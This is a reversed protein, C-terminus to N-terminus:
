DDNAVDYLSEISEVILGVLLLTHKDKQRSKGLDELEDVIKGLKIITLEKLFVQLEYRKM